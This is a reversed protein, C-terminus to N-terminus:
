SKTVYKDRNQKIFSWDFSIADESSQFGYHHMDHLTEAISAANWM